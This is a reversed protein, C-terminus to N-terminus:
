RSTEDLRARYTAYLGAVDQLLERAADAATRSGSAVEDVLVSFDRLIPNDGAYTRDTVLGKLATDRVQWGHECALFMGKPRGTTEEPNYVVVWRVPQKKLGAPQDEWEVFAPWGSNGDFAREATNFRGPEPQLTARMGASVERLLQVATLRHQTLPDQLWNEVATRNVHWGRTLEAQADEIIRDRELMEIAPQWNEFLPLKPSLETALSPWADEARWFCWLALEFGNGMRWQQKLHAPVDKGPEKFYGGPVTRLIAAVDEVLARKGAQIDSLAELYAKALESLNAM